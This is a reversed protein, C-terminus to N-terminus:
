EKWKRIAIGLRGIKSHLTNRNIGLIQAAKSQNGYVRDLVIEILPKEVAELVFRYLRGQNSRFFFDEFQKVAQELPRNKEETQEKKIDFM